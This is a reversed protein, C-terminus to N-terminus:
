RRGLPKGIMEDLAIILSEPPKDFHVGSAPGLETRIGRLFLYYVGGFHDRYSYGKLRQNLYRHLALTYILYQLFYHHDAMATVLADAQYDRAHEGLHNSKYDALYYHGDLEFILDIFGHMFGQISRADIRALTSAYAAPMAPWHDQLTKSLGKGDLGQWPFYFEMEVLRQHNGVRRLRCEQGDLPTDLVEEAMNAIVGSWEPEFGFQRLSREAQAPIKDRDSTFDIREFLHHLCSGAQAGRPFTMITRLGPNAPELPEPEPSTTPLPDRDPLEPDGHGLDRTLATFSTLRRIADIRRHIARAEALTPPAGEPLPRPQPATTPLQHIGIAQPAAQHLSELRAMLGADGLKALRKGLTNPWKEELTPLEGHLLLGLPSAGNGSINGWGLYCRYKARTVAVYFLRQSEALEEQWYQLKGQGYGASGFDLIPRYAEKPDHFRLPENGPDRLIGDWTYPCFIVPYELGKSKHITLVQVLQADSELRLESEDMGQEQQLQRSFWQLLGQPPPQQQRHHNHLLEGLHRLNTLRREGDQLALLRLAVGEGELLHSFMAYFGGELWRRRLQAFRALQEALQQEDSSLRELAHADLGFLSSSLAGRLLGEQHPAHIAYLVRELESAERSDFVSGRASSVAAIGWQRLVEVMQNAQQNTRV